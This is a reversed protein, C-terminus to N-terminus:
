DKEKEFLVNTIMFEILDWDHYILRNDEEKKDDYTYIDVLVKLVYRDMDLDNVAYRTAYPNNKEKQYYSYIEKIRQLILQKKNKM